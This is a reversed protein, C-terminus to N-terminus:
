EAEELAMRDALLEVLRPLVTALPPVPAALNPDIMYARLWTYRELWSPDAWCSSYRQDWTLNRVAAHRLATSAPAERHDKVEAQLEELLRGLDYSSFGTLDM